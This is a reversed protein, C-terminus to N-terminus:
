HRNKLCLMWVLFCRPRLHWHQGTAPIYSVRRESVVIRGVGLLTTDRRALAQKLEATLNSALKHYVSGQEPTMAIERFEEDYPPLVNGGLDRLKLFVTFPLICRLVGKPGFGPAKVTRVSVKSGKATKHAEGTSESYIDKLVGHDRMFAMAASTMSGNKTPKYGDEIMRGPLARFLLYFLDDAYGGMLTHIIQHRRHLEKYSMNVLM